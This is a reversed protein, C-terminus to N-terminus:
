RQPAGQMRRFVPRPSFLKRISVRVTRGQPDLLDPQYNVPVFGAADRVRQKANSINDVGVRLQTGRLWPYRTVLDLREGLNAFLNFNVKLLPSFALDGNDGGTVEGGSQWNASLRAGIGNNFYGAEVDFRHRSRPGGGDGAEGDLYDLVPLGPRIQVEDTLLLTHYLSFQLRGGRGGGFGGGAGGFGGRGGGFGGGGGLGGGPGDRIIMAGPPPEAGPPLVMMFPEGSNNGEGRGRRTQDPTATGSGRRGGTASRIQDRLLDMTGQSPRATRLPKSISFGWRFEDRASREFNVPRLDVRFLRGQEDRVFREPFAAEIAATPGPFRSLPDDIRTRVYDARVSLDFSTKPRLAAGLKIVQRIDSDLDPNGGTIAEVLATEGRVFDFIRAGPTTLVPDGLQQLGPAGQERTWSGILNLPQIPSWYLGAGVSTLTGFDSLQEVEANANATLNGIATLAAGRKAIPLDFNVSSSLRDRGLDTERVEDGRRSRSELDRTDAGLRVTMGAKGAPLTFLSGNAVLDLNGTRSVSQARDEYPTLLELNERETETINRSLDYAGTLSWRWQQKEGNLALGVRGSLGDTERELGQDSLIISPGLLSTGATKEIEADFTSSVDGFLTRNITGGLRAVQRSGVLSRFPRPDTEDPDEPDFQVDREAETLASATEVRGNITTRGNNGIMLRTVDLLNSTRGGETPMEGQVRTATSRFRPRLILNLVRQDARYGYKLAVEEPLIDLRLIAEPPIDRIERFGSTRRGNILIVPAGGDRGRGSGTQPAIAEILEAVSAAGYARIDRADLQNEPPIDGIVANPDRRGIVVIEDADADADPDESQTAAATAPAAEAAATAPTPATAVPQHQPV